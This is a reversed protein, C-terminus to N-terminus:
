MVLHITFHTHSLGDVLALTEDDGLTDGMTETETETLIEALTDVLAKAEVDGLTNAIIEAQL